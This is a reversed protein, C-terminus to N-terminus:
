AARREEIVIVKRAKRVKGVERVAFLGRWEPRHEMIHRAVYARFNNNLKYGDWKDLSVRKKTAMAQVFGFRYRLQEWLLSISGHHQARRFKEAQGAAIRYAQQLIFRGGPTGKWAEFQKALTPRFLDEQIM